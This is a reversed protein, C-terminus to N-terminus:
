VSFACKSHISYTTKINTDNESRGVGANIPDPLTPDNQFWFREAM